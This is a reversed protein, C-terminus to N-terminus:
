RRLPTSIGITPLSQVRVCIMSKKELLATPQRRDLPAYSLGAKLVALISAILTVGQEILLAVPMLQGQKFRLLTRALRNASENLESYTVWHDRFKVALNGPRQRVQQEFRHIISEEIAEKPFEIFSNPYRYNQHAREDEM